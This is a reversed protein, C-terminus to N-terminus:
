LNFSDKGWCLCFIIAYGAALNLIVSLWYQKSWWNLIYHKRIRVEEISISRLSVLQMYGFATLVGVAHTLIHFYPKNYVYSWILYGEPALYSARFNYANSMIMLSGMNLLILTFIM